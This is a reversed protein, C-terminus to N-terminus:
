IVVPLERHHILQYKSIKINQWTVYQWKLNHLYPLQSM